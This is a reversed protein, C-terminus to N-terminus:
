RQAVPGCLSVSGSSERHRNGEHDICELHQASILCQLGARHRGQHLASSLFCAVPIFTGSVPIIPTRSSLSWPTEVSSVLIASCQSSKQTTEPSRLTYPHSHLLTQFGMLLPLHRQLMLCACLLLVFPLQSFDPLEHSWTVVPVEGSDLQFPSNFKKM